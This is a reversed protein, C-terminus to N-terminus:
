TTIPLRINPARAPRSSAFVRRARDVMEATLAPQDGYATFSGRRSARKEALLPGALVDAEVNVVLCAQRGTAARAYESASPLNGTAEM